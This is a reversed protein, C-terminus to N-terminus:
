CRFSSPYAAGAPHAPAASPTVQGGRYATPDGLAYATAAHAAEHCTTAFLFVGYWVLANALTDSM